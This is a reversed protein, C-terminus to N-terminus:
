RIARDVHTDIRLTLECEVGVIQRLAADRDVMDIAVAGDSGFNWLSGCEIVSDIRVLDHHRARAARGHEDITSVARCLSSGFIRPRQASERELVSLEGLRLDHRRIATITETGPVDVKM